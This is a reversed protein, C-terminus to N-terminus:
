PSLTAKVNELQSEEVLYVDLDNGKVVTAEVTVTGTYPLPLPFGKWSSAPMNEVSNMLEIPRQLVAATVKNAAKEGSTFRVLLWLGALLILIIAVLRVLRKLNTKPDLFESKKEQLTETITDSM